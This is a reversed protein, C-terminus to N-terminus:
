RRKRAAAGRRHVVEHIRMDKHHDPAGKQNSMATKM